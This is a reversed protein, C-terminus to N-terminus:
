TADFDCVLKSDIYQNLKSSHLVFSFIAKIWSFSFNSNTLSFYPTTLGHNTQWALFSIFHPTPTVAMGIDVFPLM